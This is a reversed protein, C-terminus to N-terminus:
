DRTESADIKYLKEFVKGKVLNEWKERLIVPIGAYPHLKIFVEEPSTLESFPLRQKENLHGLLFENNPTLEFLIYRQGKNFEEKAKERFFDWDISDLHKFASLEHIVEGTLDDLIKLIHKEFINTLHENPIDEIAQSIEVEKKLTINKLSLSTVYELRFINNNDIVLEDKALSLIITKLVYKSFDAIEKEIIVKDETSISDKYFEEFRYGYKWGFQFVTQHIEHESLFHESFWKIFEFASNKFNGSIDSKMFFLPLKPPFPFDNKILSLRSQIEKISSVILLNNWFLFANSVEKDKETNICNSLYFHIQKGFSFIDSIHFHGESFLKIGCLDNIIQLGTFSHLYGYPNFRLEEISFFSNQAIPSFYFDRVFDGIVGWSDFLIPLRQHKNLENFQLDAEWTSSGEWKPDFYKSLYVEVRESVKYISFPVKEGGGEEQYYKFIFRFLESEENLIFKNKLAEPIFVYPNLLYISIAYKGGTFQLEDEWILFFGHTRLRNAELLLLDKAITLLTQIKHGEIDEEKDYLYLTNGVFANKPLYNEGIDTWANPYHIKLSLQNGKLSPILCLINLNNFLIMSAVAHDLLTNFETSIVIYNIEGHSLFPLHNFIEQSYGLLETIAERETKKNTKNEILIIEKKEKNFLICDPFLRDQNNLSINKIIKGSVLDYFGLSDLINKAANVYRKRLLMDIPFNPLTNGTKDVYFHKELNDMGSISEYLKKNEILEVLKEQLTKEKM